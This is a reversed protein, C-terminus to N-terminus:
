SCAWALVLWLGRRVRQDHRDAPVVRGVWRGVVGLVALPATVWFAYRPVDARLKQVFSERPLRPPKPESGLALLGAGGVAVASALIVLLRGSPTQVNRAGARRARVSSPISLVAILALL